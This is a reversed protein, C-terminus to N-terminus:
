ADDFEEHCACTCDEGRDMPIRDCDAHEVADCARSRSWDPPPRDDLDPRGRDPDQSSWTPM